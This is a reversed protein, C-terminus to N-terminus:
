EGSSGSVGMLSLFPNVVETVSLNGPQGPLFDGYELTLCKLIFAMMDGPKGTFKADVLPKLPLLASTGSGEDVHEVKTSAAFMDMLAPANELCREVDGKFLPSVYQLGKLTLTPNLRKYHYNTGSIEFQEVNQMDSVM